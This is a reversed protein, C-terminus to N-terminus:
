LILYDWMAKAIYEWPEDINKILGTKAVEYNLVWDLTPLNYMWPKILNTQNRFVRGWQVKNVESMENVNITDDLPGFFEWPKDPSWEGNEFKRYYGFSVMSYNLNAELFDFAKQLQDQFVYYDDGDLYTIYKGKAKRFLFEINKMFGWNETAPFYRLRTNRNAIKELVTHTKDPSFDDRVLVEFEFNTTQWLASLVAQDIYYGFNYAPIIISVKIDSM